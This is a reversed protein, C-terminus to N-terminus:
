IFDLEKLLFKIISNINTNKYDSYSFSNKLCYDVLHELKRHVIYYQRGRLDQMIFDNRNILLKIASSVLLFPMLLGIENRLKGLSDYEIISNCNLINLIPGADIKKSM